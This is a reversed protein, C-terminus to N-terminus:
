KDIQDFIFEFINRAANAEIDCSLQEEFMTVGFVEDTDMLLREHARIFVAHFLVLLPVLFLLYCLLRKFFVTKYLVFKKRWDCCFLLPVIIFYVILACLYMISLINFKFKFEGLEYIRESAKLIIFENLNSAGLVLVVFSILMLIASLDLVRPTPQKAEKFDNKVSCIVSLIIGGFVTAILLIFQGVFAGINNVFNYDRGSFCDMNIFLLYCLLPISGGLIATNLAQIKTPYITVEHADIGHKKLDWLMFYIAIIMLLTIVVVVGGFDEDFFFYELHRTNAILQKLESKSTTSHYLGSTLVGVLLASHNKHIKHFNNGGIYNESRKYEYINQAKQRYKKAKVNDRLLFYVASKTNYAKKANEITAIASLLMSNNNAAMQQALENDLNIFKKLRKLKKEKQLLIVYYCWVMNQRNMMSYIPVLETGKVMIATIYDGYNGYGELVLNLRQQSFEEAYTDLFPKECGKKFEEMALDFKKRDLVILRDNNEITRKTFQQETENKEAEKYHFSLSADQDKWAVAESLLVNANIFNYYGNNPDINKARELLKNIKQIQGHKEALNRPDKECEKIDEVTDIGPIWQNRFLNALYIKNEPYKNHLYRANERNKGNYNIIIKEEENLSDINILHLKEEQILYYCRVKYAVSNVYFALLALLSVLGLIKWRKKIM